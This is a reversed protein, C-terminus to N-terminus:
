DKPTIATRRMTHRRGGGPKKKGPPPERDEVACKRLLELLPKGHTDCLDLRWRTGPDTDRVVWYSHAERSCPKGGKTVYDCTVTTNM